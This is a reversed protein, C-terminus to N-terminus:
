WTEQRILWLKAGNQGPINYDEFYKTSFIRSSTQTFRSVEGKEISFDFLEKSTKFIYYIM